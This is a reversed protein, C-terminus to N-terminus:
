LKKTFLSRRIHHFVSGSSDVAIRLELNEKSNLYRYVGPPLELDPSLFNDTKFSGYERLECLWTGNSIAFSSIKVTRAGKISSDSLDGNLTDKLILTGDVMRFDSFSQGVKEVLNQFNVFSAAKGPTNLLLDALFGQNSSLRVSYRTDLPCVASGFCQMEGLPYACFYVTKGLPVELLVEREDAAVYVCSIDDQSSGYKLSYWLRSDSGAEWPHDPIEIKVERTQLANSCSVGLVITVAFFLATLLVFIFHRM